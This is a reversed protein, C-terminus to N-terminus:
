AFNEYFLFIPPVISPRERAFRIRNKAFRLDERKEGRSTNDEEKERENRLLIVNIM